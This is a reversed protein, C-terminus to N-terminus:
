AHIKSKPHPTIAKIKLHFEDLSFDGFYWLQDNVWVAPTIFGQRTGPLQRNIDINFIDVDINGGRRIYSSLKMLVADCVQCSERVIVQVPITKNKNVQNM